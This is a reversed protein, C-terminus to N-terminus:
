GAYKPQNVRLRVTGRDLEYDIAKHGLSHCRRYHKREDGPSRVLRSCHGCADAFVSRSTHLCTILAQTVSRSYAVQKALLAGKSRPSAGAAPQAKMSNPPAQTTRRAKPGQLFRRKGQAVPLSRARKSKELYEKRVHNTLVCPVKGSIHIHM